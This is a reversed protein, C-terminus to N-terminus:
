PLEGMYPIAYWALWAFFVCHFAANWRPTAKQLSIVALLGIAIWSIASVIVVGYVYSAGHYEMAFTWGHAVSGVSFAIACIALVLTRIPPRPNQWTHPITWVLFLLPVILTSLLLSVRTSEILEHLLFAPLFVVLNFPGWIKPIGPHVSIWSLATLTVAFVLTTLSFPRGASRNSRDEEPASAYKGRTGGQLDALNYEERLEDNNSPRQSSMQPDYESSNVRYLRIRRCIAALSCQIGEWVIAM